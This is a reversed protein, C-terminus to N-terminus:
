AYFLLKFMFKWGVHETPYSPNYKTGSISSMFIYFNCVLYLLIAFIHRKLITTRIAGSIGPKSLKSWCIVTSVIAGFFIATYAIEFFYLPWYKSLQSSITVGTTVASVFLSIGFSLLLYSKMRKQKDDFPFKIMLYLDVTLCYFLTM